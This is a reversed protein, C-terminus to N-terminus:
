CRLVVTRLAHLAASRSARVPTPPPDDPGSPAPAAQPGPRLPAVTRPGQLTATRPAPALVDYDADCAQVASVPASDAEVADTYAGAALLTVLVVLVRIWAHCRATRPPHPAHSM